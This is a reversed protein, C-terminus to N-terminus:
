SPKRRPTSQKRVSRHLSAEPFRDHDHEHTIRAKGWEHVQEVCKVPQDHEHTIRAKGWEHVQEVCMVPQDHEHTIRAKGM